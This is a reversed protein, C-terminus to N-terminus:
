IMNGPNTLLSKRSVKKVEDLKGSLYDQPNPKLICGQLLFIFIPMRRTTLHM